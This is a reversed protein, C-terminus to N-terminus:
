NGLLGGTAGTVTGGVDGVTQDLGSTLGGTAQSLGSQVGARAATQDVSRVTQTVRGGPAPAPVSAPTPLPLVTVSVTGATGTATSGTSVTQAAVDRPVQEDAVADRTSDGRDRRPRHHSCPCPRGECAKGDHDSDLASPDGHPHHKNFWRQARRQNNFDSCDKDRAIAPPTWPALAFVLAETRGPARVEVTPAYTESHLPGPATEAVGVNEKPGGSGKPYLVDEDGTPGEFPLVTLGILVALAVLLAAACVAAVRQSRPRALPKRERRLAAPVRLAGRVRKVGALERASTPTAHTAAVIPARLREYIAYPSKAPNGRASEPPSTEDTRLLEAPVEAGIQAAIRGFRERARAEAERRGRSSLWRRSRALELAQHALDLNTWALLRAKVGPEVWESDTTSLLWDRHVRRVTIALCLDEYRRRPRWYRSSRTTFSDCSTAVALLLFTRASVTAGKSSRPRPGGRTWSIRKDGRADPDVIVTGGEVRL